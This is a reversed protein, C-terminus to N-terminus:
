RKAFDGLVIRHLFTTKTCLRDQSFFEGSSVFICQLLWSARRRLCAFRWFKRWYNWSSYLHMFVCIYFKSCNLTYVACCLLLIYCNAFLLLLDMSVTMSSMSHRSFCQKYSACLTDGGVGLLVFTDAPSSRLRLFPLSLLYISRDILRDVVSQNISQDISRNASRYIL